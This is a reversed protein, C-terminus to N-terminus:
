RLTIDSCVIITATMTDVEETVITELKGCHKILFFYMYRITSLFIKNMM